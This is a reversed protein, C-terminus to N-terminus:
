GRRSELAYIEEDTMHRVVALDKPHYDCEHCPTLEVRVSPEGDTFADCWDQDAIGVVAGDHGEYKGVLIRVLDYRRVHGCTDADDAVATNEAVIEYGGTRVYNRGIGDPNTSFFVGSPLILKIWGTTGPEHGGSNGELCRIKDGINPM